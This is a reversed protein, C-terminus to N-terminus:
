LYNLYRHKNLAAVIDSPMLRTSFLCEHLLRSTFGMRSNLKPETLVLMGQACLRGVAAEFIHYPPVDLVVEASGADLRSAISSGPASLTSIRSLTDGCATRVARDDANLLDCLRNWMDEINMNGTDTIKAHKCMAVLIAKELLCCNATRLMLPDEKYEAVARIVLPVPVPTVVNSPPAAVDGSAIATKEKKIINEVHM